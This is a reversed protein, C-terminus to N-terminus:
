VTNYQVTNYQVTSYQVTSYQVTSYQVTSYQVTSYQVTSYQVTSYQVTSYQVTSYQVTSCQVTSHVMPKTDSYARIKIRLYIKLIKLVLLCALFVVFCIYPSFIYFNSLVFEVFLKICSNFGATGNNEKDEKEMVHKVEVKDGIVKKFSSAMSFKCM